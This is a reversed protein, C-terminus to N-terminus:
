RGDLAGIWGRLDFADHPASASGMALAGCAAACRHLM